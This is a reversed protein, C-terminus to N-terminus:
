YHEWKSHHCDACITPSLVSEFGTCFCGSHHCMGGYSGFHPDHSNTGSNHTLDANTDNYGSVHDTAADISHDTIHNTAHDIATDTVADTGHDTITDVFGTPDALLLSGVIGVGTVVWRAAEKKRKAEEESASTEDIVKNIVGRVIRRVIFGGFTM